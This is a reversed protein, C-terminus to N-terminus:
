KALVPRNIDASSVCVPYGSPFAARVNNFREAFFTHLQRVAITKRVIILAQYPVDCQPALIHFLDRDNLFEVPM